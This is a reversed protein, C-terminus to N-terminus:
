VRNSRLLFFDFEPRKLFGQHPIGYMQLQFSLMTEPVIPLGEEHFTKYTNCYVDMLEPTGIAFWDCLGEIDSEVPGDYSVTQKAKPICLFLKTDNLFEKILDFVSEKFICDTRYRMILDYRKGTTEEYAKRLDNAKQISYFMSYARPLTQLEACEEYVEVLSSRPQFLTLGTDGEKSWTHLFFDIETMPFTSLVYTKLTELSAEVQRLEGSIQIALRM